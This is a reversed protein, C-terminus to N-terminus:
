VPMNSHSFMNSVGVSNRHGWYQVALESIYVTYKCLSNQRDNRNSNLKFWYVRQIGGDASVSTVWSVSNRCIAISLLHTVQVVREVVKSFLWHFVKHQMWEEALPLSVCFREKWYYEFNKYFMYWILNRLIFQLSASPKADVVWLIILSEFLRTCLPCMWFGHSIEPGEPPIANVVFAIRYKFDSRLYVQFFWM